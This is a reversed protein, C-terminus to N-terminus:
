GGVVLQNRTWSIKLGSSPPSINRRFTPKRPFQILAQLLVPSGGSHDDGLILSTCLARLGWYCNRLWWILRGARVTEVLFIGLLSHKAVWGVCVNWMNDQVRGATFGLGVSSQGGLLINCMGKPHTERYTTWLHLCQISRALFKVDKLSPVEKVSAM